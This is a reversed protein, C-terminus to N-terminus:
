VRFGLGRHNLTGRSDVGGMEGGGELKLSNRCFTLKQLCGYSSTSTELVQALTPTSMCWSTHVYM